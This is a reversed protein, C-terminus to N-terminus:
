QKYTTPPGSNDPLSPIQDVVFLALREADKDLYGYKSQEWADATPIAVERVPEILRSPAISPVVVMPLVDPTGTGPPKDAPKFVIWAAIAMMAAMALSPIWRSFLRLPRDRDSAHTAGAMQLHSMIRQHLEPSFAPETQRADARLQLKLPDNRIAKM